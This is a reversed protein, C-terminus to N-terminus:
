FDNVTRRLILVTVNDPAGKEFASGILMRGAQEVPYASLISSIETESVYGHLGDSCLLLTDDAELSIRRSFPEVNPTSGLSKMIINRQPHREAEERTILGEKVLENVITHDESIQIFERRRFIYARSDGAHSLLAEGNVIALATCTTAMGRLEPDSRSSKYIEMTAIQLSEKLAASNDDGKFSYYADKIIEVAMSSARKGGPGGGVGDAVVALIGKRQLMDADDPIHLLYSDENESRILGRDSEAFSRVAIM